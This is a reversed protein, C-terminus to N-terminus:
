DALELARRMTERARRRDGAVDYAYALRYWGRWNEPDRAAEARIQEFFEDAAERDVRGSPRRPLESIDPLGDEAELRKTLREMRMGFRLNVWAIWLGVFPLILVGIGLLIGAVQGTGILQFAREALLVLYVLVVATLVVAMVKAKM